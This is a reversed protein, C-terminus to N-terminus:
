FAKTVALESLVKAALEQSNEFDVVDGALFNRLMRLRQVFYLLERTALGGPSPNEVKAFAPDLVDLSISIYTSAWKSAVEMVGDCVASMSEMTMSQMSFSRINHQKLFSFEELTLDRLGVLIIREPPIFEVLHKLFSDHSLEVPLAGVHADFVIVGAGKQSVEKLVAFSAARDGLLLFNGARSMLSLNEDASEVRTIDFKALQGNEAVLPEVKHGGVILLKM